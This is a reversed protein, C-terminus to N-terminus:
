SRRRYATTPTIVYDIFHCIKLLEEFNSICRELYPKDINGTDKFNTNHVLWNGNLQYRVNPEGLSVFYLDDTSRFKEYTALIRQATQKYYLTDLNSMRGSGLFIPIINRRYAYSRTHSEGFIILQKSM